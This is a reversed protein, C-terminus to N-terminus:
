LFPAKDREKEDQQLKKQLRQMGIKEMRTCKLAYHPKPYRQIKSWFFSKGEKRHKVVKGLKSCSGQFRENM